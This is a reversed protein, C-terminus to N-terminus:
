RAAVRLAEGELEPAAVAALFACMVMAALPMTIPTRWGFAGPTKVWAIAGVILAIVITLEVTTLTLGFLSGPLAIEFPSVAAVLLLSAPLVWSGAQARAVSVRPM